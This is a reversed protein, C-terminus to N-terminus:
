LFEVFYEVIDKVIVIDNHSFLGICIIDFFPVAQNVNCKYRRDFVLKVNGEVHFCDNGHLVYSIHDVCYLFLYLRIQM